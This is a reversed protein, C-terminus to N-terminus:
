AGRMPAAPARQRDPRGPAQRRITRRIRSRISRGSRRAPSRTSRASPAASSIPRATTVSPPASSSWATSSPRRRPSSTTARSGSHAHRAHSRRRREHRLGRVAQRDDCRHAILRADLTGTFIRRACPGHKDPAADEWVSVGRSTAEGYRRTRDIRPDYRWREKGTEPDLAIVINTATELYLHGFALVPTAEFTLKDPRAFGEGLEGTHYTWAVQLQAVNSRDIQTLARSTRASSTAATTAGTARTRRNRM